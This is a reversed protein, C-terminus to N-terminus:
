KVKPLVKDLWEQLKEDGAMYKKCFEVTLDIENLRVQIIKETLFEEFLQNTPSYRSANGLIRIINHNTLVKVIVERRVKTTDEPIADWVRIFIKTAADVSSLSGDDEIMDDVSEEGNFAKNMKEIIKREEESVPNNYKDKLDLFEKGNM